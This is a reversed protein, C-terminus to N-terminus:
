QVMIAPQLGNTRMRVMVAQAEERSSYPGVRVRIRKGSPTALEQEHAKLGLKDVRQRMDHAASPQEFAGLQVFFRTNPEAPKASSTANKKEERGELLAQARAAETKPPRPSALSSPSAAPAPPVAKPSILSASDGGLLPKSAPATSTFIRPASAVASLRGAGSPSTPASAASPAAAVAAVALAGTDGNRGVMEIKVGSGASLPRPPSDFIRPLILVAASVLVLAGILRHRARVRLQELQVVEAGGVPVSATPKNKRQLFSLFGM